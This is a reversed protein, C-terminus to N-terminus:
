QAPTATPKLLEGCEILIVHKIRADDYGIAKLRSWMQRAEASLHSPAGAELLPALHVIRRGRNLASVFEYAPFLLVGFAICGFWAPGVSLCLVGLAAWMWCTSSHRSWDWGGQHLYKRM